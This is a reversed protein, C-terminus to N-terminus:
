LVESNVTKYFFFKIAAFTVFPVFFRGSKLSKIRHEIHM